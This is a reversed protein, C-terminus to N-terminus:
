KTVSGLSRPGVDFRSGGFTVHEGVMNYLDNPQKLKANRPGGLLREEFHELHDRLVAADALEEHYRRLVRGFQRYRTRSAIFRGLKGIRAWCIIYFHVDALASARNRSLIGRALQRRARAIRTQQREAAALAGDISYLAVVVGMDFHSPGAQSADHLLTSPDLQRVLGKPVHSLLSPPTPPPIKPNRM